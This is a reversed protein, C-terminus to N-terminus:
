DWCVKEQKGFWFGFSSQLICDLGLLIICSYKFILLFVIFLIFLECACLPYCCVFVIVYCFVYRSGECMGMAFYLVNLFFMFM